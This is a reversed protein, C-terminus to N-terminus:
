FFLRSISRFLNKQKSIKTDHRFLKDEEGLTEWNMIPGSKDIQVVDGRNVGVIM